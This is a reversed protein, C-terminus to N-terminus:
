QGKLQSLLIDLRDRIAEVDSVLRQTTAAVNAFDEFSPVTGVGSITYSTGTITPQSSLLNGVPQVTINGRLVAAFEANAQGTLEEINQKVAAFLQFEQTSVGSVPVSPMSVFAM